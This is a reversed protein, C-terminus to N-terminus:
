PLRLRPYQESARTMSALPSESATSSQRRRGTVTVSTTMADHRSSSMMTAAADLDEAEVVFIFAVAGRTLSFWTVM